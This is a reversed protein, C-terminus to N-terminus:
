PAEVPQFACRNRDDWNRIDGSERCRKLAEFDLEAMVIQHQNWQSEALVSPSPFPVNSPAIIASTGVACPVPERGISGVLSAHIVFVQQEVARAQACWRVRNFGHETETFAPICHVLRGCETLNRASPSFESDYCVAVGLPVDPQVWDEGPQLGWPDIEFQTLVMKPTWTLRPHATPSANIFGNQSSVITTGGIIVSGYKESLTMLLEGFPEAFEAMKPVVSHEDFDGIAGLLDFTVFEPFVIVDAGNAEACASELRESFAGFSPVLKIEWNVAAAIM